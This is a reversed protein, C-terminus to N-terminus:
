TIGYSQLKVLSTIVQSKRSCFQTIAYKQFNLESLENKLKGTKSYDKIVNIVDLVASSHTVGYTEAAENVAIKFSILESKGIHMAEILGALPVTDKHKDLLNALITCNNELGKEKKELREIYTAERCFRLM